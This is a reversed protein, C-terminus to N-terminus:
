RTRWCSRRSRSSSGSAPSGATRRRRARAIEVDIPYSGPRGTFGPYPDAALTLYAALHAAYRVYAALFRHLM